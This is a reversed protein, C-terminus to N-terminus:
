RVPVRERLVSVQVQRSYEVPSEALVPAQAVRPVEVLSSLAVVRLVPVSGLPFQVAVQTVRAQSVVLRAERSVGQSLCCCRDMMVQLLIVFWVLLRYM